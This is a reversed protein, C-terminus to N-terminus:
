GGFASRGLALQLNEVLTFLDMQNIQSNGFYFFSCIADTSGMGIGPTPNVAMLYMSSTPLLSAGNPNQYYKPNGNYAVHNAANSNRFMTLFGTTPSPNGIGWGTDNLSFFMGGPGYNESFFIAGGGRNVGYFMGPTSPVDIITNKRVVYAGCSADLVKMKVSNVSAVWGTDGFSGTGNGIVGLASHQMGGNWSVTFQGPNKMNIAHARDTGGYIPYILDCNDWINLKKLNLVFDIWLNHNIPIGLNEIAHIYNMADVDYPQGTNYANYRGNFRGENTGHNTGKKLGNNLGNSTGNLM